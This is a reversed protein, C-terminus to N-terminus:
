RSEKSSIALLNDGDEITRRRRGDIVKQEKEALSEDQWLDDLLSKLRKRDSHVGAYCGKTTRYRHDWFVAADKDIFKSKLM